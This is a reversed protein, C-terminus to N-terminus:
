PQNGWESPVAVSFEVSNASARLFAEELNVTATFLELVLCGHEVALDAVERNSLASVTLRDGSRQEVVGGAAGIAEALEAPADTRVNVTKLEYNRLFDELSSDAILRGKGVVIVHDALVQMEALLHSSVLISNGQAAYDKLFTRLWIMGQPDMGNGPEDLILTDPSGLLAVALGLRQRMGLSFRGPHGDSASGLGVQELVEDARTTTIGSGQAIMRLHNRATRRPHCASADLLVGVRQAPNRLDRYRSGGFLTVGEGRDLGLMLRMTTSKGAGNPGLFGTVQGPQAQFSVDDVALRGGYSKSLGRAEIAAVSVEMDKIM